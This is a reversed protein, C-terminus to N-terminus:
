EEWLQFEKEAELLIDNRFEEPILHSANKYWKYFNEKAQNYDKKRFHVKLTKPFREGLLRLCVLCALISQEPEALDPDSSLDSLLRKKILYISAGVAGISFDNDEIKSGWYSM